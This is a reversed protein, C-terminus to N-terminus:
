RNVLNFPELDLVIMSLIGWDMDHEKNSSPRIRQLFTQRQAHNKLNFIPVSGRM